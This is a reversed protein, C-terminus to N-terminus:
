KGANALRFTVYTDECTEAACTSSTCETFSNTSGMHDCEGNAWSGSYGSSNPLESQILEQLISAILISCVSSIKSICVHLISYMEVM